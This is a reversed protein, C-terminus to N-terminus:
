SQVQNRGSEKAKYLLTDAREIAEAITEDKELCVLGISVTLPPVPSGPGASRVELEGRIREAIERASELGAFPLLIAFEEGGIRAVLDTQRIMSNCLDTFFCLADDGTKHGYSDNISKFLDLDLAMLSLPKNRQRCTVRNLEAQEYFSRRNKIGTLPDTLSLEKLKENSKQLERTQIAVEKELERSLVDAKKYANSVRISLAFGQPIIFILMGFQTINRFPLSLFDLALIDLSVLVLFAIAGLFILLSAEDNKVRGPFTVWLGFIMCSLGSLQFVYVSSSLFPLPLFLTFVAFVSYSTILLKQIRRKLSSDWFTVNALFPMIAALGLYSVFYELRYFFSIDAVGFFAPLCLPESLMGRIAYFLSSLGLFVSYNQPFRNLLLFVNFLAIILLAGLVMGETIVDQVYKKRLDDEYGLVIPRFLGGSRFFSNHLRFRIELIGGSSPLHVISQSYGAEGNLINGSSFLLEGNAYLELAENLHPIQLALQKNKVRPLMLTFVYEGAFYPSGTYNNWAAPVPLVQWAKTEKSELGRFKWNGTITFPESLDDHSVNLVGNAVPLAKGAAPFAPLM